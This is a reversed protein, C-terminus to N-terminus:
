FPINNVDINGDSTMTNAPGSVEPKDKKDNDFVFFKTDPFMGLELAFGGNDFQVLSGVNNWAAKEEGQANKYTRKATVNFRKIM